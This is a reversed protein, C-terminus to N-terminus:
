KETLGKAAIRTGLILARHFEPFIFVMKGSLMPHAHELDSRFNTITEYHRTSFTQSPNIEIKSVTCSVSKKGLLLYLPSM